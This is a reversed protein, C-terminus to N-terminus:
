EKVVKKVFVEKSTVIKIIYLGSSLNGPALEIKTNTMGKFQGADVGNVDYLHIAMEEQLDSQVHINLKDRFPIPYFSAESSGFEVALEGDTKGVWSDDSRALPNVTTFKTDTTGWQDPAADTQVRTYYTQNSSLGSFSINNVSSTQVISVGSLFDSATNLEITYNTAGPVPNSYVTVTTPM